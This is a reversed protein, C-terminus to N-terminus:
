HVAVRAGPAPRVAPVALAAVVALGAAVAAAVMFGHRYGATALSPLAVNVV